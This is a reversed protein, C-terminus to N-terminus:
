VFGFGQYKPSSVDNESAVRLFVMFLSATTIEGKHNLTSRCAQMVGALAGRQDAAFFLGLVWRHGLEWWV